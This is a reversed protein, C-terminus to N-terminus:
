CAVLMSLECLRENLEDLHKEFWLLLRSSMNAQELYVTRNKSLSDYYQGYFNCVASKKQMALSAENYAYTTGKYFVQVTFRRGTEDSSLINGCEWKSVTKESIGLKVAIDRQLLGKRKRCEAIFKGIKGQNM